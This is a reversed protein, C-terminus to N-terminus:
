GQNWLKMNLDPDSGCGPFSKVLVVWRIGYNKHILHPGHQDKFTMM